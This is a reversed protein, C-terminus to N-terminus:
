HLCYTKLSFSVPSIKTFQTGIETIVDVTTIYAVDTQAHEMLNDPFFDSSIFM